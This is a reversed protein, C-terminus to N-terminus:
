AHILVGAQVIRVQPRVTARSASVSMSVDIRLWLSPRDWVQKYGNWGPPPPAGTDFWRAGNELWRYRLERHILDRSGGGPVYDDVGFETGCCPCISFEQPPEELGPFFCVPCLLLVRRTQEIKQMVVGLDRQVANIAAQAAAHIEAVRHKTEARIAEIDRRAQDRIDRASRKPTKDPPKM